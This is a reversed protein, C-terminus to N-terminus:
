VRTLGYSIALRIIASQPGDLDILQRRAERCAESLNQSTDSDLVLTVNKMKMDSTDTSVLDVWEENALFHNIADCIWRSKDRLGYGDGVLKVNLDTAM